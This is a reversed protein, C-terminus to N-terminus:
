ISTKNVSDNHGLVSALVIFVNFFKINQEFIHKNSLIPVNLFVWAEFCLQFFSAAHAAPQRFMQFDQTNRLVNHVLDRADYTSNKILPFIFSDCSLLISITNIHM